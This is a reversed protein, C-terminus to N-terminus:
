LGAGGDGDGDGQEGEGAPSEGGDSSGGSEEAAELAAKVAYSPAAVWMITEYRLSEWTRDRDFLNSSTSTDSWHCEYVLDDVKMTVHDGLSLAVIGFPVHEAFADFRATAEAAPENAGHDAFLVCPAGFLKPQQGADLAKKAKSYCGWQYGGWSKLDSVNGVFLAITWGLEQLAPAFLGGMHYRKYAKTEGGMTVNKTTHLYRFDATARLEAYARELVQVAYTVCDTVRKGKKSSESSQSGYYDGYGRENVLHQHVEFQNVVAAKCNNSLAEWCDLLTVQEGTAFVEAAADDKVRLGLEFVGRERQTADKTEAVRVIVVHEDDLGALKLKLHAREWTTETGPVSTAGDRSTELEAGPLEMDGEVDAAVSQREASAFRFAGPQEADEEATASFSAIVEGASGDEAVELLELALKGGLLRPVLHEIRLTIVEGCKALNPDLRLSNLNTV